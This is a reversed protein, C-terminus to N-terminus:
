ICDWESSLTSWSFVLGIGGCAIDDTVVVVLHLYVLTDLPIPIGVIRMSKIVMYSSSSPESAEHMVRIGIVCSSSGPFCRSWSRINQDWIGLFAVVLSPVSKFSNEWYVLFV